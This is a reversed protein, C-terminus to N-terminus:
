DYKLPLNRSLYSLFAYWFNSILMSCVIISWYRHVLASFLSNSCSGIRHSAGNIKLIGNVNIIKMTYEIYNTDVKQIVCFSNWIIDLLSPTRSHSREVKKSSIYEFVLSDVFRYINMTLNNNDFPKNMFHCNQLLSLSLGPFLFSFFAVCLFISQNLPGFFHYFIITILKRQIKNFKHTEGRSKLDWRAGCIRVYHDTQRNTMVTTTKATM